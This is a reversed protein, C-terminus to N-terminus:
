APMTSWSTSAGFCSKCHTVIAAVDDYRSVDCAIAEARGGSREITEAMAEIAESTRAALVVAVGLRGLELATAAGIGKSAGTVIAARGSLEHM